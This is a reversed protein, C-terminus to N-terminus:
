AWVLTMAVDGPMGNPFDIIEVRLKYGKDRFQRDWLDYIEKPVGTLTESWGAEMQNIARGNDTCLANPFRHVQVETRRNRVAGEILKVARQIAEEDSVGSPKQLQDLLAKKQLEADHRARSEKAAEEAEAIAIKKAYDGASPLLTDLM